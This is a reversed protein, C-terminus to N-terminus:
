SMRREMGGDTALSVPLGGMPSNRCDRVPSRHVRFTGVSGNLESGALAYDAAFATWDCLQKMIKCRPDLQIGLAFRDPHKEAFSLM